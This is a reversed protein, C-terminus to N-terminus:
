GEAPGDYGCLGVRPSNVVPLFYDGDPYSCRHHESCTDCYWCPNDMGQYCLGCVKTANGTCEACPHVPPDNRSLVEIMPGTTRATPVFGLVRGLLETTTGFDYEYNFRSGAAVTDALRAAMSRPNAAWEYAGDVDYAFTTGAHNFCSLHGCCEVWIHRLFSDLDDWTATPSAELVLWYSSLYRDELALLLTDADGAGAIRGRCARVHRQMGAKTFNKRCLRCQGHTPEIM